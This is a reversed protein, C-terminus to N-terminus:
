GEEERQKRLDVGGVAEFREITYNNAVEVACGLVDKGRASQQLDYDVTSTNGGGMGLSMLGHFYEKVGRLRLVQTTFDDVTFSISMVDAEWNAVSNAILIRGAGCPDQLAEENMAADGFELSTSMYNIHFDGSATATLFMLNPRYFGDKCGNDMHTRPFGVFHQSTSSTSPFPVLNTGGRMSGGPDGLPLTMDEPIEPQTYVFECYGNLLHCKLIRLPKFQYIFHIYHSPWQKTRQVEGSKSLFMPMWNKEAGNPKEGAINLIQTDNTFPRFIYMARRKSEDDVLMNFIIVPEPPNSDGFKGQEIVIRPDEPGYFAGGPSYATPIDFIRPFTIKEGQWEIEYDLQEEWQSNHIQGRLFSIISWHRVGKDYFLVRTVTLYVQFKEMWVSSSAMRLWTKSVIEEHSLKDDQGDYNIMPHGELEAAIAQIDDDIFFSQQVAIQSQHQIDDCATRGLNEVNM